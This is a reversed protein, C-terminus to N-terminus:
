SLLIIFCVDSMVDSLYTVPFTHEEVHQFKVLSSMADITVVGAVVFSYHTLKLISYLMFQCLVHDTNPHFVFTNEPM